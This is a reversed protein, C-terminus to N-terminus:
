NPKGGANAKRGQEDEKVKEWGGTDTKKRIKESNIKTSVKLL